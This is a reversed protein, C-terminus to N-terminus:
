QGAKLGSERGRVTGGKEEEKEEAEAGAELQPM